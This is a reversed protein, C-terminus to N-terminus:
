STQRRGRRLGIATGLTLLVIFSSPEPVSATVTIQGNRPTGILHVVPNFPDSDDSFSSNTTDVTLTFTDGESTNIAIHTFSVRAILKSTTNLTVPTNTYDLYSVNGSGNDVYVYTLYDGSAVGSFLFNSDSSIDTQPDDFSISGNLTASSVGIVVAYASISISGSDSKATVDVYGSGGASISADGVEVIIGAKANAICLSCILAIACLIRLGM